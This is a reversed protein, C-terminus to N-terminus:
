FRQLMELVTPYSNGTVKEVEKPGLNNKGVDEAKILKVDSCKISMVGLIIESFSIVKFLLVIVSLFELM